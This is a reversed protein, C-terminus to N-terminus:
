RVYDNIVGLHNSNFFKQDFLTNSIVKSFYFLFIHNDWTYPVHEYMCKIDILLLILNCVDLERFFAKRLMGKLFQSSLLKTKQFRITKIWDTETLKQIPAVIPVHPSFWHKLSSYRRRYYKLSHGFTYYNTNYTQNM